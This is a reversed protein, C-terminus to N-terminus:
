VCVLIIGESENKTTMEKVALLCHVPVKQDFRYMASTVSGAIIEKVLCKLDTYVSYLLISRSKIMAM